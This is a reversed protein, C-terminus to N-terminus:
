QNSRFYNLYEKNKSGQAVLANLVVDILQRQNDTMQNVLDTKFFQNEANVHMISVAAGDLVDNNLQNDYDGEEFDTLTQRIENVQAVTLKLVETKASINSKENQQGEIEEEPPAPPRKEITKLNAGSIIVMSSSLDIFVTGNEGTAPFFDIVLYRTSDSLIIDSCGKVPLALVTTIMLAIFRM